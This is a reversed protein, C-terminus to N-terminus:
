GKYDAELLITPHVSRDGVRFDIINIGFTFIILFLKRTPFTYFTHTGMLRLSTSTIPYVELKNLPDTINRAKVDGNHDIVM